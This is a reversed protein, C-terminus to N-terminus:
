GKGRTKAGRSDLWAQKTVTSALGFSIENFLTRARLTTEDLSAVRIITVNTTSKSCSGLNGFTTTFFHFYSNPRLNWSTHIICNGHAFDITIAIPLDSENPAFNTKFNLALSLRQDGFQIKQQLMCLFALKNKSHQPHFNFLKIPVLFTLMCFILNLIGLDRIILNLM